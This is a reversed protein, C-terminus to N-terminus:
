GLLLFNQAFNAERFLCKVSQVTTPHGQGSSHFVVIPRCVRKYMEKGKNEMVVVHFTWFERHNDRKISSIHYMNKNM